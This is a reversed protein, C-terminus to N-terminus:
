LGLKKWDIGNVSGSLNVPTSSSGGPTIYKSIASAGGAGTSVDNLTRVTAGTYPNVLAKQKGLDISTLTPNALTFDQLEKARDEAAKSLEYSRNANQAGINTSYLSLANSIADKNGGAQLEAIATQIARNDAVEAPTLGSIMDEISKLAAEREFSTQQGLRGYNQTIDSTKGTLDQQFMGSSPDIGRKSYEDTLTKSVAQTDKKERGAIDQLIFDYRTALDSKSGTLRAKEGAYKASTEPISASLSAIVPANADAISKQSQALASAYDIAGNSTAAPAPANGANYYQEYQSYEQSNSKFPNGSATKSGSYNLSSLPAGGAFSYKSIDLPAPM